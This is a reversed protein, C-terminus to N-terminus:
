GLMIMGLAGGSAIIIFAFSCQNMGLAEGSEDPCIQGKTAYKNLIESLTGSEKMKTIHYHFLWYFPSDKQM